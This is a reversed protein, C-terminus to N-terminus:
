FAGALQETQILDVLNLVDRDRHRRGVGDARPRFPLNFVRLGDVVARELRFLAAQEAFANEAWHLVPFAGAALIFADFMATDNAISAANFYRESAYTALPHAMDFQGYRHAVNPKEFAHRRADSQHEVHRRAVEFSDDVVLIVHHNIRARSRELL